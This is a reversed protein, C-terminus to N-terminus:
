NFPETFAQYPTRLGATLLCSFEVLVGHVCSLYFEVIHIFFFFILSRFFWPGLVHCMELGYGSKRIEEALMKIQRLM